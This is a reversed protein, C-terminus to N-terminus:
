TRAMRSNRTRSDKMAALARGEISNDVRRLANLIRQEVGPDANSADITYSRRDVYTSGTGAGSAIVGLDGSATRRLPMVAETGAEGGLVPGSATNFMTASSILGGKAMKTVGQGGVAVGQRAPKLVPTPISSGGGFGGGGSVAGFISNLLPKVIALRILQSIIESVIDQFIKAFINLDFKGKAVMDGISDGIRLTADKTIEAVSKIPVELMQAREALKTYSELAQEFTLLQSQKQTESLLKGTKDLQKNFSAVMDAREFSENLRELAAAGGTQVAVLRQQMRQLELNAGKLAEQQKLAAGSLGGGGVTARTRQEKISKELAAIRKLDAEERAFLEARAKALTQISKIPLGLNAGANRFYEKFLGENNLARIEATLKAVEIRSDVVRDILEQKLTTGVDGIAGQMRKNMKIYEEVDTSLADLSKGTDGLLAKFGFFGAAAGALAVVLRVLITLLGGIPNALVAVNLAVMGAAAGRLAVGITRLGAVIVGANTFLFNAALAGTLAGIVGIVNEINLRLFDFAGALGRLAKKFTNSIGLTQDITDLLLTTSTSLNQFAAQLTDITGGLNFTKRLEAAFKPLFDESIVQGQKLMEGLKQTTVGMARSAIKFAGPLRDGLQGRLEESQVTGKSMIQELARFIGQSQELPLQLKGAAQAVTEFIRKSRSGELNTGQAAIMFKAYQQGTQALAQGSKRSIKIVEDFARATIASSGTIADLQSRIAGMKSANRIIASSLKAVGFGAAAIGAIMGATALGARKAASAFVSIRAAIGGLPGNALVAANALNQMMDSMNSLQKVNQQKAVDKLRRSVNGLSTTLRANARQYDLATLSGKTMTKTFATLSRNAAAINTPNAGIRRTQANLDRVRKIASIISKEQRRMATATKSAGKVQSEAAREVERGFKKLSTVSARLGRDNAGLGFNIDGLKLAM